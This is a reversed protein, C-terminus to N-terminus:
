SGPWARGLFRKPTVGQGWVMHDGCWHQPIPPDTTLHISRDHVFTMSRSPPQEGVGTIRLILESFAEAATRMTFAIVAPDHANLEPAYGQGQLEVREAEPLLEARLRDQDIVDSCSVCATKPVQVDVRCYIGRLQGDVSDLLVGLDFVPILCWYALRAVDLRGANDDTCAFIIDCARLADIVSRTVKGNITNVKTGLGIREASDAIVDVKPRRVDKMRSGFLRTVNTDELNQYDVVTLEGVGARILLEAEASGTGGGGVIGVHLGSLLQQIPGGFAQVQRDFAAAPPAPTPADVSSTFRFRDGVERLLDVAGVLEDGRWVRGSFSLEGDVIRLVLSGYLPSGTRLQFVPRLLEDVDDDFTSMVPEADPHTHVFMGPSGMAAAHALAPMYADSDLRLRRSTQELYTDPAAPEFWRGTLRLEGPSESVGVILVGAVELPDAAHARIHGAVEQHLSLTVRPM